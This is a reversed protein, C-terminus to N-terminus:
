RDSFPEECQCTEYTGTLWPYWTIPNEASAKYINERKIGEGSKSACFTYWGAHPVVSSNLEYYGNSYSDFTGCVAPALIAWGAVHAGEVPNGTSNYVYGWGINYLAHSATAVTVVLLLSLILGKKM